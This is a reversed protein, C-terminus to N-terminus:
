NTRQARLRLFLKPLLPDAPHLQVQLTDRGGSSTRSLQQIVAPSWLNLDTSEELVVDADGATTSVTYTLTAAPQGALTVIQVRPLLAPDSVKPDLGM